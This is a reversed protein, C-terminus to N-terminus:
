TKSKIAGIVEQLQPLIASSGDNVITYTQPHTTEPIYTQSNIRALAEQRSLGNRRMIRSIRVEKPASVEIVADVMKDIESQYLIATEVFALECHHLKYWRVIDERVAKHTIRNLAKLKEGDSFVISGVKKRDLLGEQTLCDTQFAENIQLKIGLNNDILRRAQSDCDYVDYGLTFLINAVVSKGSGIGGSVAILM